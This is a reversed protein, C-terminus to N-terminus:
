LLRLGIFIAIPIYTALNVIFSIKLLDFIRIDAKRFFPVYIGWEIFISFVFAVGIWMLNAATYRYIPVFTGLLSTVINAVLVVLILKWFGTQIKIWKNVLLWFVFAEILIIFPIFPIIMFSLPYIVDAIVLKPIFLYTLLTIILFKKNM